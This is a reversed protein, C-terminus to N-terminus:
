NSEVQWTSKCNLYGRHAIAPLTLNALDEDPFVEIEACNEWFALPKGSLNSLKVNVFYLAPMLNLNKIDIKFELKSDFKELKIESLRSSMLFIREQSSQSTFYILLYPVEDQCRGSICGNIKLNSKSIFHNNTSTLSFPQLHFGNSIGRDKKEHAKILYKELVDAMIGDYVLEGNKLLIGRPCLSKVAAMNHSVFLVTRGSSAVENMKGLCKNQFEADGVALVEDIILIEPDLHAAVSFALRVKMGSSYFKVPTDLYKGIGSFAVIDDFKKDIEKKTMGLITGNMYVNERGSLEPHFGTGVELLSSVRGHIHIEGETPETIRSLVKLLTSKGAGNHGIIGLVEGRFVQFSVDKLAWNIGETDDKKFKKLQILRKFNRFPATLLHWVQAALTDQKEDAIGIRYRKSINRVEIALEKEANINIDVAERDMLNEM